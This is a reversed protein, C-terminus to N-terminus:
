VRSYKFAWRKMSLFLRERILFFFGTGVGLWNILLLNVAAKSPERATNSRKFIINRLPFFPFSTISSTSSFLLLLSLSLLSRSFSFSFSFNIEMKIDFCSESDLGTVKLNSDLSLSLLLLFSCCSCNGVLFSILPSFLKKISGRSLSSCWCLKLLDIEIISTLSSIFSGIFWNEKSSWISGSPLKSSWISFSSFWISISVVSFSTCIVSLLKGLSLLKTFSWKNCGFSEILGIWSCLENISITSCSSWKNFSFFETWWDFNFSGLENISITSCSSWLCSSKSFEELDFGCILNIILATLGIFSCLERISITSCSSRKISFSFEIFFSAVGLIINFISVILGIYSCDNLPKTSALSPESSLLLNISGFIRNFLSEILKTLSLPNTSALSPELSVSNFCSVKTFGFIVKFPSEVLKM